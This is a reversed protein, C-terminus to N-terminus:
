LWICAVPIRVAPLVRIVTCSALACEDKAPQTTSHLATSPGRLVRWHLLHQCVSCCHAHTRTQSRCTCKNTTRHHTQCRFARQSVGTTHRAILDVFSCVCLWDHGQEQGATFCENHRWAETAGAFTYYYNVSPSTIFCSTNLLAHPPTRLAMLVVLFTSYWICLHPTTHRCVEEIGGAGGECMTNNYICVIVRKLGPSLLCGPSSHAACVTLDGVPQM